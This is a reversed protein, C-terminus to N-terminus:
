ARVGAELVVNDVLWSVVKDVGVGHKIDTFIFPREGRMTKADREM